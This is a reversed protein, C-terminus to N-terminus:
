EVGHQKLYEVVVRQIHKYTDNSDGNGTGPRALDYHPGEGNNNPDRNQLGGQMFQWVDKPNSLLDKNIDIRHVKGINKNSTLQKYLSSKESIPSGVLILNDIKQGSNALRLAVHAQLVSGYSYGALNLQEGNVLPNSSISERIQNMANDIQEDQVLRRETKLGPSLGAVYNNMNAAIIVDEYASERHNATFAIDGNTGHSANIRTFGHIGGQDFARKWKATYDWGIQDNGAGAVFFVRKGDPDVANLPTNLVFVYPAVM